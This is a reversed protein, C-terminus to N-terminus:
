AEKAPTPQTAPEATSERAAKAPTPQAAPKAASKRAAKAAGISVLHELIENEVATKPTVNGPDYHFSVPGSQLRLEGHVHKPIHYTKPKM